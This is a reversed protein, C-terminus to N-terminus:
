VLIAKQWKRVSNILFIQTCRKLDDLQITQEQIEGSELLARRFTGALLGSELPPTIRKGDLEVVLNAITSETLEGRENWLLVDDCDTCSARAEEYVKRNTTKHFLFIDSSNVSVHAPKVRIVPIEKPIDIPAHQIEESGDRFVLLRVKQPKGEYCPILDQLRKRIFERNVPYDFYKASDALRQLHYDFLFYSEDPTWLLTELLSFETPQETFVRAKLLAEAYEEEAVSDNVIGGGAGYEAQGNRKDVIATRIAVNFQAWRNPAIYGISGTYLRRPDPELEGIIDMTRIKPAGTISACPFLATLIEVLSRSCDATVTSTMQWLTPHRETEFLAPVRVSGVDAVRGLDNRVMDVIMLNEARNKESQQLWQALSADEDNTRGRQVTGKMPKCHLRGHDLRFFLEPSASCVAWRAMNIFASYGSPQARIMALFLHWPDGSFPSRMRMTYNVQYTDGDHIYQKIQQIARHYNPKDLSPQFEGLAYAMRDPDPFTFEEPKEYLGFWLLPFDGAPRTRFAADFAPAAEYSLFGAAYGQHAHVFSEVQNLAPLVEEIEATAIIRLPTKFFLWKGTTADRILVSDAAAYEQSM